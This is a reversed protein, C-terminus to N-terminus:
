SHRSSRYSSFRLDRAGEYAKETLQEADEGNRTAAVLQDFLAVYGAAAKIYETEWDEKM